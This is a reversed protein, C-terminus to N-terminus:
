GIKMMGADNQNSYQERGIWIRNKKAGNEDKLTYPTLRQKFKCDKLVICTGTWNRGGVPWFDQHQQLQDEEPQHHPPFLNNVRGSIYM